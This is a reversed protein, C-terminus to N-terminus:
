EAPPTDPREPVDPPPPNKTAVIIVVDQADTLKQDPQVNTAHDSAKSIEFSRYGAYKLAKVYDEETLTCLKFKEDDVIYYSAGLYDVLIFTGDTRVYESMREICNEFDEYDAAAATFSFTASMVDVPSLKEPTMPDSCMLDCPLIGIVSNRLREEYEEWQSEKEDLRAAYKFFGDWRYASADGACWMTLEMRCGPTFDSCYIYHFKMSGPILFAISPGTGVDLLRGKGKDCGEFISNLKRFIYGNLSNELSKGHEDTKYYSELYKRANFERGYDYRSKLDSM